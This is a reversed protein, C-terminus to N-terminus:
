TSWTGQRNELPDGAPGSGTGADGLVVRLKDLARASQSKVTGPSCGLMDAVQDVSLDAWYRLMVVARARPPLTALAGLMVIREEPEASEAPAAPLRDTLVEGSRKLRKDALYTNVLTRTAYAHASEQRKLRHWSAFVKTLTTQALDEATHWDGCLLYAARRLRPSTEEAFETFEEASVV